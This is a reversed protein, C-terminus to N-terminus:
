FVLVDSGHLVLGTDFSRDFGSVCNGFVFGIGSFDVRDMGSSGIWDKFSGVGFLGSFGKFGIPCFGSKIDNHFRM